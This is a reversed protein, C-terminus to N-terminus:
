RGCCKKFKKTSGCICAENRGVSPTPLHKGSVYFWEGAERKFDSREHICALKGNEIYWAIFTVRGKDNVIKSVAKVQLGKWEIQKGWELFAVPDAQARTTKHTTTMYYKVEKLVFATYRSRMLQEPTKAQAQRNLLLSCCSGFPKLSGCPCNATLDLEKM